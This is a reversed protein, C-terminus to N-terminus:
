QDQCHGLTKDIYHHGSHTMTTIDVSTMVVQVCIQFHYFLFSVPALIRVEKHTNSALSITGKKTWIREGSKLVSMRNGIHVARFFQLTLECLHPCFTM